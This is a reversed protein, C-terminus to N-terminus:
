SVISSSFSSRRILFLGVKVVVFFWCSTGVSRVKQAQNLQSTHELVLLFREFAPPSSSRPAQQVLQQGGDVVVAVPRPPLTNPAETPQEEPPSLTPPGTPSATQKPEDKKKKKKLRRGVSEELSDEVNDDVSGHDVVMGDRDDDRDQTDDDVPSRLSQSWMRDSDGDGDWGGAKLLDFIGVKSLIGGGGGRNGGDDYAGNKWTVMAILALFAVAATTLIFSFSQM